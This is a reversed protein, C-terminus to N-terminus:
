GLLSCISRQKREPRRTQASNAGAAMATLQVGAKGFKGGSRVHLNSTYLVNTHLMKPHESPHFM